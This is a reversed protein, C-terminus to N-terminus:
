RVQVQDFRATALSSTDHSTVALGVHVNTGMPITERGVLTWTTGNSSRYAEFVDGSRVLRIWAPAAGAGGDTHTSVGNTAARRQFALGRERSVLMYAHRSGASLTERIMVGAKLWHHDGEVSAVRAIIEGDGALPRYLYHFGDATNWIDAGAGSVVFAGDQEATSGARGVSGIDRSQWLPAGDIVRVNDFSATGLSADDHSTFALGAHITAGMAITEQGVLTWTVGDASRYASFMSGARVLRVWQPASGAGADTHTSIGGRSTRRQFARGREKAVLMFAHRADASLSERMMVGAKAWHHGAQLTAVRAVIEGDGTLERSAFHFGDARDWVDWGSGFLTFTGGSESATGAQGVTGVDRSTWPSPLGSPPPPPPPPESGGCRDMTVGDFVRGDLGVGELSLTCVTAAARVYHHVSASYATWAAAGAGYVPAGGGGSVVYTVREHAPRTTPWPRTREYLHDHAALVLQVGHREFLPSFEARIALDSGHHTGASYPTRHFYVVKWPQSTSSLDADLWAIQAARRAPDQFALESDLAVFHVPGYDFSYYREAHDPFQPSGGNPPLVFTELYAFGHQTSARSDHNGLSPFFASRRLWREYVLFFWDNFTRFSADGVGTVSGYVVDGTHISLDFTDQEMLAALRRQEVSGTGSDGFAIFRVTGTGSTPATTFRDGADFATVGGVRVQYEYMTSPALSPLHAEHQYYDYALNTTSAPYFTSSAPATLTTSGPVGYRVEGPSPGFTTWVVIAGRDTVQQLFPQRALTVPASPGSTLAVHEFLSTATTATTHSTVALGVYITAAMSIRETGVTRWSVGDASTQATFVHGTRALRVWHPAGAALGGTSTSAGGTTVRRQFALGRRASVLTIAHRSDPALSERMMVGAKAWDHTHDLSAVRAVIAGDGTLTRYVYHFGDATNWIDAGAGRVTVTTGSGSASGSAGVSGIDTNTWGPPLSQARGVLLACITFLLVVPLTRRM